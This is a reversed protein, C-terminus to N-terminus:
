WLQPLIDIINWLPSFDSCDPFSICGYRINEYLDPIAFCTSMAVLTRSPTSSNWQKTGAAIGVCATRLWVNYHVSRLWLRFTYNLFHWKSLYTLIIYIHQLYSHYIATIKLLRLCWIGRLCWYKNETLKQSHNTWRIICMRHQYKHPLRPSM